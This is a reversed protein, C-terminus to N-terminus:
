RLKKLARVLENHANSNLDLLEKCTKHSSVFQEACGGHHHYIYFLQDDNYNTDPYNKKMKDVFKFAPKELYEKYHKEQVDPHELFYAMKKLAAEKSITESGMKINGGGSLRSKIWPNKMLKRVTSIQPEYDKVNPVLSSIEKWRSYALVQYKGIASSWADGSYVADYAGGSEVMGLKTRLTKNYFGTLYEANYQPSSMNKVWDPDEKGSEIHNKIKGMDGSFYNFLSILRHKDTKIGEEKAKKLFSSYLHREMKRGVHPNMMYFALQKADKDSVQIPNETFPLSNLFISTQATIDEPLVMEDMVEPLYDTKLLLIPNISYNYDVEGKGLDLSKFRFSNRLASGYSQTYENPADEVLQGVENDRKLQESASPSLSQSGGANSPNGDGPNYRKMVIDLLERLSKNQYRDQKGMRMVEEWLGLAEPDTIDYGADQAWEQVTAIKAAHNKTYKAEEVSSPVRPPNKENSIGIYTDEPAMSNVVEDVMGNIYAERTPYLEPLKKREEETMSDYDWGISKGSRKLVEARLGEQLNEARAETYRMGTEPDVKIQESAMTKRRKLYDEAVDFPNEVRYNRPDLLSLDFPEEGDWDYYQDLAANYAGAHINDKDKNYQDLYKMHVSQEYAVQETARTTAEGLKRQLKLVDQTTPSDTKMVEDIASYMANDAQELIRKQRPNHWGMVKNSRTGGPRFKTIMDMMSRQMALDHRNKERAMGLQHRLIDDLGTGKMPNLLRQDPGEIRAARFPQPTSPFIQAM